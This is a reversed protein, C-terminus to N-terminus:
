YNLMLAIISVYLILELCFFLDMFYLLYHFIFIINDFFVIADAEYGVTRFESEIKFIRRIWPAAAETTKVRPTGHFTAM